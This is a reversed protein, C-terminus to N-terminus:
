KYRKDEALQQECTLTQTHTLTHTERIRVRKKDEADLGKIVWLCVYVYVSVVCFFQLSKEFKVNIQQKTTHNNNNFFGDHIGEVKIYAMKQDQRLYLYSLYYIYVCCQVNVYVTHLAKEFVKDETVCGRAVDKARCHFALATYSTRNPFTKKIKPIM